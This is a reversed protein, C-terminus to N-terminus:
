SKLALSEFGSINRSAEPFMVRATASVRCAVSIRRDSAFFSRCIVHGFLWENDVHPLYLQAVWDISIVFTEIELHADRGATLNAHRHGHVNRRLVALSRRAM